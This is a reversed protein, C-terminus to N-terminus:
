DAFNPTFLPPIQRRFAAEVQRRLRARACPGMACVAPRPGPPAVPGVREKAAQAAAPARMEAAGRPNAEAVPPNPFPPSACSILKGVGLYTHSCFMRGKSCAAGMQRMPSALEPDVRAVESYVDDAISCEFDRSRSAYCPGDYARKKGVKPTGVRRRMISKEGIGGFVHLADTSGGALSRRM